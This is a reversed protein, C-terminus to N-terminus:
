HGNTAHKTKFCNSSSLATIIILEHVARTSLITRLNHDFDNRTNNDPSCCPDAEHQEKPIRQKRQM